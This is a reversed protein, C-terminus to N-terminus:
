PSSHHARRGVCVAVARQIVQVACRGRVLAWRRVRVPSAEAPGPCRRRAPGGRACCARCSRRRCALSPCSRRCCASWPHSRSPVGIALVRRQQGIHVAIAHRVVEHYTDAVSAFAYVADMFTFPVTALFPPAVRVAAFPVEVGQTRWRGGCNGFPTPRYRHSAGRPSSSPPRVGVRTGGVASWCPTLQMEARDRTSDMPVLAPRAPRWSVCM